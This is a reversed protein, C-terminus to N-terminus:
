KPEKKWGPTPLAPKTTLLVQAECREKRRRRQRANTLDKQRKKRKRAPEMSAGMPAPRLALDVDYSPSEEREHAMSGSTLM